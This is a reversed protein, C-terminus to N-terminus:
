ENKGNFCYTCLKCEGIGIAEILDDLRHYKLTDFGMTRCIEDVMQQHYVSDEDTYKKIIDETLESTGELESIIRRTILDMDSTSRSFNLFKCSYMIPPCASRVHIQKAGCDYLLQATEKLQTGRVISDDILVLKKNKILENVTILKMRAILSRQKQSQPM